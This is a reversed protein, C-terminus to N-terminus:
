SRKILPLYVKFTTSIDPVLILWSNLTGTASPSVSCAELKWAGKIPTNRLVSLPQYPKYNYFYDPSLSNTNSIIGTPAADDFLANLNVGGATPGLLGVRTGAPSVLTVRLNNRQSFAINVGVNMAGILYSDNSTLTRTVCGNGPISVSFNDAYGAIEYAGIDCQGGEPQPRKFGRQDTSQCTFPDTTGADRAPSSFVIARTPTPGGNNQLPGVGPNSVNNLAFGCTNKTELNYGQSTINPGNCNQGGNRDVVLSNAISLMGPAVTKLGPDTNSVITSSVISVLGQEAYVGGGGSSLSTNGSLTVLTLTADGKNRLGGGLDLPAMNDSLTSATVDLTGENSIAGGSTNQATNGRLWVNDLSLQASSSNFIGGGGAKAVNSSLTIKSLSAIGQNNFVGGGNANVTSNNRIEGDKGIVTGGNNYLGGGSTTATNSFIIVNTLTIQSSPQNYIGGGFLAANNGITVNTLNVSGSNVRLGGGQPGGNNNLINVNNLSVKGPSNIAIGGGGSAATNNIINVSSVSMQGGELYIGGGFKVLGTPNGHQITLGTLTVNTGSGSIEFVSAVNGGDVFTTGAGAGQVTLSKGIQIYENYTGAAVSITDGAAARSIAYQINACPTVDCNGNNNGSPSVYRVANVAAWGPTIALASMVLVAILVALLLPRTFSHHSTSSM